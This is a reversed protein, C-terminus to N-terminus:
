MSQRQTAKYKVKHSCNYTVITRNMRILVGRTQKDITTCITKTRCQYVDYERYRESGLMTQVKATHKIGNITSFGTAVM